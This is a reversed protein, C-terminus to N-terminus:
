HQRHLAFQRLGMLYAGYAQVPSSYYVTDSVIISWVTRKVRPWINLSPTIFRCSCDIRTIICIKPKRLQKYRILIHPTYLCCLEYRLYITKPIPHYHGTGSLTNKKELNDSTKFSSHAGTKQLKIIDKQFVCM